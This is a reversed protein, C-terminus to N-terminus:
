TRPGPINFSFLTNGLATIAGSIGSIVFGVIGYAFAWSLITRGGDIVLPRGSAWWSTLTLVVLLFFTIAQHIPFIIVRGISPDLAVWNFLVLGVGMLAEIIIFVMSLASVVRIPSGKPYIKWGWVLMILILPMALGSTLRHAFEILIEVQPTRPIIEGNCLPWHSGCGAGSGTARVFAGWLIIVLNYALIFWTFKAYSNLRLM